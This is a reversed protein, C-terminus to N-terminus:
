ASRTRKHAERLNTRIIAYHMLNALFKKSSTWTATDASPLKGLCIWEKGEHEEIWHGAQAERVAELVIESKIDSMRGDHYIDWCNNEKDRECNGNDLQLAHHSRNPKRVGVCLRLGGTDGWRNVAVSVAEVRGQTAAIFDAYRTYYGAGSRNIFQHWASGRDELIHVGRYSYPLNRKKPIGFLARHVALVFEM